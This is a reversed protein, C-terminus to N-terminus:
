ELKIVQNTYKSHDILNSLIKKKENQKNSQHFRLKKKKKQRPSKKKCTEIM